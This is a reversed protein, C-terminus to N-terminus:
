SINCPLTDFLRALLTVHNLSDWASYHLDSSQILRCRSTILLRGQTIGEEWTFTRRTGEEEREEEWDEERQGEDSEETCDYECCQVISIDNTDIRVHTYTNFIRIIIVAQTLSRCTANYQIYTHKKLRCRQCAMEGMAVSTVTGHDTQWTWANHEFPLIYRGSLGMDRGSRTLIQSADDVRRGWIKDWLSGGGTSNLTPSM